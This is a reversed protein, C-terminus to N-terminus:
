FWFLFCLPASYEILMSPKNCIIGKCEIVLISGEIHSSVCDTQSLPFLLFADEELFLLFDFIVNAMSVSITSISFPIASPSPKLIFEFIFLIRQFYIIKSLYTSWSLERMMGDLDTLKKM